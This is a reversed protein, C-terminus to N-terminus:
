DCKPKRPFTEVTKTGTTELRNQNKGSLMWNDPHLGAIEIKLQKKQGEETTLQKQEFIELNLNKTEM